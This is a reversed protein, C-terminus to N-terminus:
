RPGIVRITFDKTDEHPGAGEAGGSPDDTRAVFTYDGPELSSIDISPRGPTSSTWGARPRRSATSSSRTASRSRGRCPPRSPRRRRRQGRAHRRHRDRGARPLHRQGPGHGDLADANTFPTETSLGFLRFDIGGRQVQVPVREQQVGQLTYVLQQIALTRPRSRCATPASPSATAPSRSSCCVTPPRCTPSRWRRGCRATTPTSPTGALM